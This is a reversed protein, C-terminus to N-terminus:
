NIGYYSSATSTCQHREDQPCVCVCVCVCVSMDRERERQSSHLLGSVTEDQQLLEVGLSLKAEQAVAGNGDSVDEEFRVLGHQGGEGVVEPHEKNVMVPSCRV